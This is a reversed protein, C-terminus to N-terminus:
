GKIDELLVPRHAKASEYIAEILRVSRMSEAPTVNPDYGNSIANIFDNYQNVFYRIDVSTPDSASNADSLSSFRKKIEDDEAKKDAFDWKVISDDEVVITGKTGNIEIRRVSGPYSGTTAEIVGLAGNKYRMIAAAVDEVEINEHAIIDSYASVEVPDGTLYLLLDITHIAQNILIGGGCLEMSGRWPASEFYSQGRYWKVEANVMSIRGFRGSDITEKLVQVVPMFRSQFICTLYVGEEEAITKLREAREVNIEIPKEIIVHKGAKMALEAPHLHAGCPTTVVVIDVDPDELLYEVEDYVKPNGHRSSFEKAKDITRSCVAALCCNDLSEIVRAHVEAIGGLGIIAFGIKGM